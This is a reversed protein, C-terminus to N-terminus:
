LDRANRIADVSASFISRNQSSLVDVLQSYSEAIRQEQNSKALHDLNALHKGIILNCAPDLFPRCIADFDDSKLPLKRALEKCRKYASISDTIALEEMFSAGMPLHSLSRRLDKTQKLQVAKEQAASIRDLDQQINALYSNWAGDDYRAATANSTFILGLALVALGMKM